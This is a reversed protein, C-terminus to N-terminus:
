VGEAEYGFITPKKGRGNSVIIASVFLASCNPCRKEERLNFGRVSTGCPWQFRRSGTFTPHIEDEEGLVVPITVAACGEYYCTMIVTDGPGFQSLAKSM